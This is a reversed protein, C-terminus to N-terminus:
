GNNVLDEVEAIVDADVEATILKDAPKQGATDRVLEWARLDGKLAKQFAQVAMAEAGSMTKGNKGTIDTELLVQLAKRLDAKARRAKGSAIGGKRNLERVEEESRETFPILNQEGNTM